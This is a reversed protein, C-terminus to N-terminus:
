VFACASPLVVSGASLTREDRTTDGSGQVYVWNRPDWGTASPDYVRLIAGDGALGYFYNHRVGLRHDIGDLMKSFWDGPDDDTCHGSFIVYRKPDVRSKANFGATCTHLNQSELRVGARIPKNCYNVNCDPSEGPLSSPSSEGSERSDSTAARAGGETNIVTAGREVRVAGGFRLRVSSIFQKQRSTLQPIPVPTYLYVVNESPDMSTALPNSSGRNVASLDQAISANARLLAQESYRVNVLDTVDQVGWRSALTVVLTKERDPFRSLVGVKIRDGDNNDIWLGGFAEGLHERLSDELHSLHAQRSLRREAETVTIGTEKALLAATADM